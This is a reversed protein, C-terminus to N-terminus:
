SHLSIIKWVVSFRGTIKQFDTHPVTESPEGSFVLNRGVPSSVNGPVFEGSDVTPTEKTDRPQLVWYNSERSFVLASIGKVEKRLGFKM